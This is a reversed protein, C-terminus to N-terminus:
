SKEPPKEAQARLLAQVEPPTKMVFEFYTDLVQADRKQVEIRFPGPGQVARDINHSGRVLWSKGKDQVTLPSQERLREEGYANVLIAAAFTEAIAPDGLLDIERPNHLGLIAADHKRIELRCAGAGAGVAENGTVSWKDGRDAVSLPLSASLEAAGILPELILRALRSAIAANNVVGGSGFGFLLLGIGPARGGDPLEKGDDVMM